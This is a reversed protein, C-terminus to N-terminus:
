ISSVHNRLSSIDINILSQNDKEIPKDFDDVLVYMGGIICVMVLTTLLGTFGTVATISMAVFTGAALKMFLDFFPPTKANLLHMIHQYDKSLDCIISEDYNVSAAVKTLDRFTEQSKTFKSDNTEIEDLINKAFHTSLTKLNVQAQLGNLAGVIRSMADEISYFRSQAASLKAGLLIATAFGIVSIPIDLAGSEIWFNKDEVWIVIALKLAAAIGLWPLLRTFLGFSASASSKPKFFQLIRFFRTLRLVRLWESSPIPLYFALLSPLIALIDIIGAFSFLYKSKEKLIILRALFDITFFALVFIDIYDIITIELNDLPWFKQEYALIVLSLYVVIISFFTYAIAGPTKPEEFFSIIESRNM